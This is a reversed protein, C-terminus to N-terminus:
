DREYMEKMQELLVEITRIDAKIEICDCWGSKDEPYFHNVINPCSLTDNKLTHVYADARIKEIQKANFYHGLFYLKDVM